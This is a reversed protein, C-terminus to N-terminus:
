LKNPLIFYNDFLGPLEKRKFMDPWIFKDLLIYIPVGSLICFLFQLIGPVLSLKATLDYPRSHEALILITCPNGRLAFDDSKTNM